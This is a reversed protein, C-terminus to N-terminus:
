KSKLLFSLNKGEMKPAVEVVAVDELKSVIKNYLEEGWEPHSLERGKFMIKIRVKNGEELFEKVKKLKVALDHDSIRPGMTIERVEGQQKKKAEKQKKQEEYKFKGYDLIKCVPPNANPDVEVLDLGAEYAVRLADKLKMIGLHKGDPGIVRVEPARIKENVRFPEEKNRKRFDPSLM